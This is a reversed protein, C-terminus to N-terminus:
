PVVPPKRLEDCQGVVKRYRESDNGYREKARTLLQDLVLELKEPQGLQRATAALGQLVKYSEDSVLGLKDYNDLAFESWLDIARERRGTTLCATALNAKCALADPDDMRELKPLLAEYLDYAAEFKDRRKLMRGQLMYVGALNGQTELTDADDPPLYELQLQETQKYLQEAEDLQRQQQKVGAIHMRCRLTRRDSPGHEADATALLDEFITLSEDYKRQQFLTVGLSNRCERLLPHTAPFQPLLLAIATRLHQEAKVYEGLNRWTVGIAHRARAEALPRGRFRETLRLEAQELAQRMTVDVGQGGQLGQPRAASLFDEVLFDAFATSDAEAATARDRDQEAQQKAQAEGDARKKEAERARTVQKNADLALLWGWSTGGVAVMLLGVLLLGTTVLRANRMVFKRTRYWNSPPGAQVAEGALHRRIDEAFSSASDYRRVRDKELAKMVIWDLEGRVLKTLRAPETQRQASISPLSDRSDILRTSPKPPEEERIMRLMEDWAAARLRPGSLPTFGTLLEYLLVGLAYVDSRTDVDLQNLKAQEPSMYEITGVFQGLQTYVTKETLTPGFAKAVGFDIIKVVPHEDYEAVLVNGPKLDRHIIGKQHAHQIAQCVPIFLRLREATSLRHADCYHTIPVGKVLEMVFYPRGAQTVGGDFVRAINPHDMLALAQREAEFRAVIQQSDMGPKIIKLAVRRQLPQRQEAVYVVGMGGQGIVELLKYPGIMGGLQEAPPERLPSRERGAATVELSAAPQALFSGPNDHAALLAAIRRRQADDPCVKDLWETRESVPIGCAQEFLAEDTMAIIERVVDDM